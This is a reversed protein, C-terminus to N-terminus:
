DARSESVAERQQRLLEGLTRSLVRLKERQGGKDANRAARAKGEVSRPGTSYDWPRWTRILESM